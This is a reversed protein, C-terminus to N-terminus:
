GGVIVMLANIIRKSFLGCLIGVILATRWGIRMKLKKGIDLFEFANFIVLALIASSLGKLSYITTWINQPNEDGSLVPFFTEQVIRGLIGAAIAVISLILPNPSILVSDSVARLLNQNKEYSYSVDVSINFKRPSWANRPFRLTYGVAHFSDPAVHTLEKDKNKPLEKEVEKLQEVKVDFLNVLSEDISNNSFFKEKSREADHTNKISFEWSEVQKIMMKRKDPKFFFVMFQFPSFLKKYLQVIIEAMTDAIKKRIDASQLLIQNNVLYSLEKCLETHRKKTGILSTDHVEILKVNEPIRPTINHLRIPKIGNNAIKLIYTKERSRLDTLQEELSFILNPM